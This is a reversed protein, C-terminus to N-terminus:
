RLNFNFNQMKGINEVVKFDDDPTNMICKINNTDTDYLYLLFNKIILSHNDRDRNNVTIPKGYKKFFDQKFIETEILLKRKEVNFPSTKSIVELDKKLKIFINEHVFLEGNFCIINNNTISIDSLFSYINSLHKYIKDKKHIINQLKYKRHLADLYSNDQEIIINDYDGKETASFFMKGTIGETIKMFSEMAEKHSGM